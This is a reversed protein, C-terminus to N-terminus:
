SFSYSSSIYAVVQAVFPSCRDVLGFYVVDPLRKAAVIKVLQQLNPAINPSLATWLPDTLYLKM